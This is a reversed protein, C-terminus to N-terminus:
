WNDDLDRTDDDTSEDRRRARDQAAAVARDVLEGLSEADLTPDIDVLLAGVATTRDSLAEREEPELESLVIVVHPMAVPIRECATRPDPARTVAVGSREFIAAIMSGRVGGRGVLMANTAILRSVTMAHVIGPPEASGPPDDGDMAVLGLGRLRDLIACVDTGAMGTLDALEQLTLSGDVRSLLFADRPDMSTSRPDAGGVVRPIRDMAGDPARARMGSPRKEVAGSPPPATSFAPLREAALATAEDITPVRPAPCTVSPPPQSGVLARKSGMGLKTFRKKGM